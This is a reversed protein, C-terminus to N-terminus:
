PSWEGWLGLKTERAAREHHRFEEKRAPDFDYRTLAQGYGERIIEGNVLVDGIWVFALVRKYKDRHRIRDNAKDYELRCPKGEALDRTFDAARNGLAIITERDQKSRRADRDLKACPHSEPCDVGILRVRWTGGDAAVELSDGDVARTVTGEIPLGTARPGRLAAYLIAALVLVVM